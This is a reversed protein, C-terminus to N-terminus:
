PATYGQANVYVQAGTTICAFNLATNATTKLPNSFIIEETSSMSASVHGRWIITSGDKLVVETATANTNKVQMSTIYRRLGAGGAAAVAVDTTNTVGGAPAAYSWELEPIQHPRTIQVGQLTAILDATDGTAVTPYAASLARGAIRVPNGSVVADHAAQGAAVHAPVPGIVNVGIGQGASTQGRGATIEATIEDYDVVTLFSAVASTSTAPPTAGNVWRLRVKYLANPDPSQTQRRYSVQRGTAADVNSTHWWSEDAFPEIEFLATSATTTVTVAASVLPTQGGSQVQYKAQTATTGDFVWTAQNLGDPLGNEGVSVLEVLFSQNIIRQSLRLGIALRFPVTFVQKTIASTEANATTGSTLTLEGAAVSISGGSGISSDWIDSRLESGPFGDRFKAAVSKARVSGGDPGVVRQVGYYEPQEASSM